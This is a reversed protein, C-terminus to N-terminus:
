WPLSGNWWRALWLGLLAAGNIALLGPLASLFATWRRRWRAAGGLALGWSAWAAAAQAGLLPALPHLRVAERWEFHALHGFARTLGCGPCPLDFTRRLLCVSFAEDAPLRVLALIVAGAMM